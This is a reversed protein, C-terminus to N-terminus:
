PGYEYERRVRNQTQFTYTKREGGYVADDRKPKNAPKKAKPKPKPKLTKPKKPAAPKKTKETVDGSEYLSHNTKEELFTGYSKRQKKSFDDDKKSRVPPEPSPYDEREPSTKKKRLDGGEFLTYNRKEELVNGFSVREGGSSGSRRGKGGTSGRPGKSGRGSKRETKGGKSPIDGGVNITTGDKLKISSILNPDIKGAVEPEVDYM